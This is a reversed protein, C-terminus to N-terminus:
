TLEGRKIGLWLSFLQLAALQCTFTKTAAVGIEPGAHTYLVGHSERALSSDVVNCITLVKAGKDKANRVATLTDATEGSQSIAVVLTNEDLVPDRYRFESAQDVMVLIKGWPEMFYRAVQAAHWSTGCAVLYIKNLQSLDKKSPFLKEVEPLSVGPDSMQLHGRITDALARPQEFIEKLMFHKYGGKEAMALNWHITKPTREVREGSIKELLVGQSDLVGLEGDELFNIQKTYPLLAPVDSAVFNEGAGYGVVLPSGHRAVYLKGPELDNIMAIAYSGSVKKLAERLALLTNKKTKLNESVLHALIESDTESSFEHGLAKLEERLRLYNEIIGNHVITISQYHHPHANSESPRGHTAWRTHGVGLHAAPLENKAVLDKLLKLKGEARRLHTQGSVALAIGASDYGRYELRTLGDLLVEQAENEGIYGVIGCMNGTMALFSAVFGDRGMM